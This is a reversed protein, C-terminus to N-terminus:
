RIEGENADSMRDRRRGPMRIDGQGAEIQLDAGVTDLLDTNALVSLPAKKVTMKNVRVYVYILCVSGIEASDRYGAVHHM